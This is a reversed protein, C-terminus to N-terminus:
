GSIEGDVCRLVSFEIDTHRSTVRPLPHSGFICYLTLLSRHGSTPHVTLMLSASGWGVVEWRGKVCVLVCLCSCM